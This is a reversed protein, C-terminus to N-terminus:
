NSLMLWVSAARVATMADVAESLLEIAKEWGKRPNRILFRILNLRVVDDAGRLANYLAALEGIEVAALINRIRAKAAFDLGDFNM